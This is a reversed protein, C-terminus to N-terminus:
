SRPTVSAIPPPVPPVAAPRPAPAAPQPEPPEPEEAEVVEPEDLEPGPAPAAVPAPAAIAATAPEPAGLRATPAAPNEAQEDTCGEDDEEVEGDESVMPRLHPDPLELTRGVFQHFLGEAPPPVELASAFAALSGESAGIAGAMSAVIHGSPRSKPDEQLMSRLLGRLNESAQVAPDALVGERIEEFGEPDCICMALMRAAQSAREPNVLLDVAVLGALYVDTAHFVEGAMQEPALRAGPHTALASTEAARASWVTSMKEFGTVRIGGDPRLFICETSIARHLTRLMEGTNDDKRTYVRDLMLCVQRVVELIVPEPLPRDEIESLRLGAPAESVVALGNWCPVVALVRPVLPDPYTQMLLGADRVRALPNDKGAQGRPEVAWRITCPAAVGNLEYEGQFQEGFGEKGLYSLFKVLM